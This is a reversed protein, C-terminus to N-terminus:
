AGHGAVIFVVEGVLHEDVRLPRVRARTGLVVHPRPAHASVNPASSSTNRKYVVATVRGPQAVNEVHRVSARTAARPGKSRPCHVVCIERFHLVAQLLVEARLAFPQRALELVGCAVERLHVKVSVPMVDASDNVAREHCAIIFTLQPVAEDAGDRCAGGVGENGAAAIVRLCVKLFRVKRKQILPVCCRGRGGEARRGTFVCLEDQTFNFSADSAVFPAQM